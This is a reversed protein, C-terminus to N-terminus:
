KDAEALIRNIQQDANTLVRFTVRRSAKALERGERRKVHSSSFGIAAIHKRLWAKEGALERMELLHALVSRTRDQSLEMNKFYAEDESAHASWYTSAHGEIRIETISERFKGLRKMYRPFFDELVTKFEPRLEASGMKFLMDADAFEVALTRRDITANWRVLDQAFEETLSSYIAGQTTEYARAIDRIQDRQDYAHQMLSISVFLFVMMLGSMLDSNSIWHESDGGEGTRRSSSKLFRQM